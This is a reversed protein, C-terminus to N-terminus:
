LKATEFYPSTEGDLHVESAVAHRLDGDIDLLKLNQHFLRVQHPQSAIAAGLKRLKAISEQTPQPRPAIADLASTPVSPNECGLVAVIIALILPRYQRSM